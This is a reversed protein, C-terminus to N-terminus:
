FNIATNHQKPDTSREWDNGEWQSPNMLVLPPREAGCSFLFCLQPRVGPPWCQPLEALSPSPGEGLEGRGKTPGRLLGHATPGPGPALSAKGAPRQGTSPHHVSM